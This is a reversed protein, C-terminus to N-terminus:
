YCIKGNNIDVPNMQTRYHNLVITPAVTVSGAVPCVTWYTLHKALPVNVLGHAFLFGNNNILMIETPPLVNINSAHSGCGGVGSSVSGFSM